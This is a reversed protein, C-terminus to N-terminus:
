CRRVTILNCSRSPQLRLRRAASSRCPRRTNTSCSFSAEDLKRPRAKRRKSCAFTSTLARQPVRGYIRQADPQTRRRALVRRRCQHAQHRRAQEPFTIRKSVDVSFDTEGHKYVTLVEDKPTGEIIEVKYTEGMKRFLDIVEDRKVVERRFPSDKKIIALMEKEIKALDEDTFPGDPRDFDYYFGDEIAPGITVKTGPFLRQVADAM